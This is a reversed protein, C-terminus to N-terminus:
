PKQALAEEWYGRGQVKMEEAWNREMEALTFSGGKGKEPVKGEETMKKSYEKIWVEKPEVFPYDVFANPYQYPAVSPLHTDITHRISQTIYAYGRPSIHLGDSQLLTSPSEVASSSSSTTLLSFLEFLDITPSSTKKGVKMVEDAYVRHSACEEADACITPTMLLVKADVFISKLLTITELMNDHFNQPTILLHSPSSRLSSDNTGLHIIILKVPSSSPTLSSSPSYTTDFGNRLKALVSRSNSDPLGFCSCFCVLRTSPFQSETNM